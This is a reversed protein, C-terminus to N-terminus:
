QDREVHARSNFYARQFPHSLPLRRAGRSRTLQFRFTNAMHPLAVNTASWTLAHTSIKRQSNSTSGTITASWTLAHTSIIYQWRQQGGKKTASWTLAHTSIPSLCSSIEALTSDREVHARSNFDVMKIAMEIQKHRAGRSRTLQFSPRASAIRFRRADREVHARSNFHGRLATGGRDLFDREM